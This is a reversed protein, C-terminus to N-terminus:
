LQLGGLSWTLAQHGRRDEHGTVPLASTPTEPTSRKNNAQSFHRLAVPIMFMDRGHEKKFAWQIM